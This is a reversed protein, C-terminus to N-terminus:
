QTKLKKWKEPISLDFNKEKLHVVDPLLSQRFRSEYKSLQIPHGNALAALNSSYHNPPFYIFVKQGAQKALEVSPIMDSDASVVIAIDCNKEYSDSVIQTAIRVDSEKEEYTNIINGCNFCTIKKKLYKGLILQFRSNEMNAQFFAYQRANKEQNDPRASFYKVKILEQDPKMFKDFFKVIDLWYYRKWKPDGKLGYYFNFGDVYVIVKQKKMSNNKLTLGGRALHRAKANKM